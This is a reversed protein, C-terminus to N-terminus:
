IQVILDSDPAIYWIYGRVTAGTNGKVSRSYGNVQAVYKKHIENGDLQAPIEEVFKYDVVDVSGDPLWVVRDVRTDRGRDSIQRETIVRKFDNFWRAADPNALARALRKKLQTALDSKIRYRYARREMAKDLDAPTMVLSMVAHLFTGLHRLSDPNFPELLDPQTRAELRKQDPVTEYETLEIDLTYSRSKDCDASAREPATPSGIELLEGNFKDTMPEVWRRSGDTLGFSDIRNDDLNQFATTLLKGFTGERTQSVFIILERTPRTFAVYNVNLEDISSQAIVDACSTGFLPSDAMSQTISLPMADPVIDQDIGISAFQSKDFDVWEISGSKYLEGGAFPLHVCPYELGKAKHITLLSVANIDPPLTIATNHGTKDWWRLFSAIDHNGRKTFDLVADQYTSLFINETTKLSDPVFSHIIREVIAPLSLCEMDLLSKLSQRESELLEVGPDKNDNLAADIAEAATYPSGDDHTLHLYFHFRNVLRARRYADSMGGAAVRRGSAKAVAIEDAELFEPLSVLRLVSTVLRISRSSDLTVAEESIIDFHRLPNEAANMQELLFSIVLQGEKRGRVLIAIDRPEYGADLQRKLETLMFDLAQQTVSPQKEAPPEDGKKPRPPTKGIKVKIYGPLTKRAPDIQQITNTYTSLASIVGARNGVRNDIQSALEVFLTNNFKVIEPSSRWNSNYAIDVGRLQLIDPTGFRSAVDMGVQQGLLRPDSSRFRYICQKEDGIVLNDMGRSLSEMLLPKLNEWQMSSTDQFEDFLFHDLYYGLKEYIFPTEDDNILGHLINNTQDLLILQNDRCYADIYNMITSILGFIYVHRRIPSLQQALLKNRQYAAAAAICLQQYAPSLNELGAKLVAKKIDTAAGIITADSSLPEGDAIKKIANLYNKTLYKEKDPITDRVQRALSLMEKESEVLLEGVASAFKVLRARDAFYPRLLPLRKKFEEGTIDSLEKILGEYNASSRSFINFTQGQAMKDKMFEYLWAKVWSQEVDEPTGPITHYNLSTYMEDVGLSIAFKNDLEVNYNDPLEVERTFMRLVSQFFSDITSVNFYSFDYLLNTLAERSAQRLEDVTCGLCTDEDEIFAKFYPSKFTSDLRQEPKLGLRDLEDNTPCGALIALEKIIRRTMEGTAKNTFTIALIRSHDSLRKSRLRYRGDEKKTAILFKIYERTLNYTKGSGASAKYIQLM